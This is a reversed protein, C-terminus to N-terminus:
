LEKCRGERYDQLAKKALADLKGSDADAAIQRDWANAEFQQFWQSFQRFDEPPLQSVASEIEQLTSM